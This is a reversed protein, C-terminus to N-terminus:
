FVIYTNQRCTRYRGVYYIYKILSLVTLIPLMRSPDKLHSGGEFSTWVPTMFQLNTGLWGPHVVQRREALVLDYM